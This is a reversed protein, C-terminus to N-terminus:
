APRSQGEQPPEVAEIPIDATLAPESDADPIWGLYRFTSRAFLAIMRRALASQRLHADVDDGAPLQRDIREAALDEPRLAQTEVLATQVDPADVEGLILADTTMDWHDEHRRLYDCISDGPYPEEWASWSLAIRCGTQLLDDVHLLSEELYPVTPGAAPIQCVSFRMDQRRLLAGRTKADEKWGQTRLYAEIVTEADPGYRRYLFDDRAFDRLTSRDTRDIEDWWAQRQEDTLRPDQLAGGDRMETLRQYREAWVPQSKIWRDLRNFAKDVHSNGMALDGVQM